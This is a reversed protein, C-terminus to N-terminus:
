IFSLENGDGSELIDIRAVLQKIQEQQKQLLRIMPSILEGYRLGYAYENPIEVEKEITSKMGDVMITETVTKTKPSKIFAGTKEFLTGELDQSILGMHTRNSRNNIFKYSCPKLNLLQDAFKDINEYDIDKKKTRDSTNITSNECFIEDWLNTSSGITRANITSDPIINTSCVINGAVRLRETGSQDFQLRNASFHLDRWSLSPEICKIVGYPEQAASNTGIGVALGYQFSNNVFNKVDIGHGFISYNNDWAANGISLAGGLTKVGFKAYSTTTGIVGFSASVLNNSELTSNVIIKGTGNGAITLNGDTVQPNIASAKLTNIYGINFKYDSKGIDINNTSSPTINKYTTIETTNLTFLNTAGQKFTHTNGTIYDISNNSIAFKYANGYLHIKDSLTDSFDILNTHLINLPLSASGINNNNTILSSWDSSYPGYSSSTNWEFSCAAGGTSEVYQVRIRYETGATISFTAYGDTPAQNTWAAPYPM